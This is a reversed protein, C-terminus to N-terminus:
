MFFTSYQLEVTNLVYICACTNLKDNIQTIVPLYFYECKWYYSTCTQNTDYFTVTENVRLRTWIGLSAKKGNCIILVRPRYYLNFSSYSSCSLWMCSVHVHNCVKREHSQCLPNTWKPINSFSVFGFYEQIENITRVVHMCAYSNKRQTCILVLAHMKCLKM